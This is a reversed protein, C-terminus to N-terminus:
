PFNLSVCDQYAQGTKGACPNTSYRAIFLCVTAAVLVMITIFLMFKGLPSLRM